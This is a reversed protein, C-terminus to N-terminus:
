RGPGRGRAARGGRRNGSSSVPVAGTHPGTPGRPVPASAELEEGGDIAAPVVIDARRPPLVPAWPYTADFLTVENSYSDGSLHHRVGAIQWNAVGRVVVEFNAVRGPRCGPQITTASLAFREADRGRRAAILRAAVEDPDIGLAEVVSGVSGRGVRRFAGQTVDDLVAARIPVTPQGYLGTITFPTRKRDSEQDPPAVGPVRAPLEQAMARMDTLHVGVGGDSSGTMEIRLGLLGVVEGLWEGLPQGAAIAYQLWDLSERHSTTVTVPPLGPLSPTLTPKGSGGAAMSVVGGLIEGASCGRFAGWVPRDELYTVPDMVGITCAAVSESGTEKPEIAGLGVPWSRVILDNAGDGESRLTLFVIGKAGPLAGAAMMSGMFASSSIGPRVRQALVARGRWGANYSEVLELRTLPLKSPTGDAAEVSLLGRFRTGSDAGGNTAM